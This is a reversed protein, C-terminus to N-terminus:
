EVRERGAGESVIAYEAPETLTRGPTEPDPVERQWAGDFYSIGPRPNENRINERKERKEPTVIMNGPGVEAHTIIEPPCVHFYAGGDPM